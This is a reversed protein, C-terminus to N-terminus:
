PAGSPAPRGVAGTEAGGGAVRGNDRGDRGDEGAVFPWELDFGLVVTDLFGLFCYRLQSREIGVRTFPEVEGDAFTVAFLEEGGAGECLGLREVCVVVLPSGDKLDKGDKVDKMDKCDKM